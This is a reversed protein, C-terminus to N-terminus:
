SAVGATSAALARREKVVIMRYPAGDASSWRHPTGGPFYLADDAALLTHGLDGLDVDVRGAIVTVFEDEDHLFYEGPDRGDGRYDLPTFRTAGTALLRAEGSGYGGAPAAEARLV